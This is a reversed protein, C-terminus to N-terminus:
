FIGKYESFYKSVGYEKLCDRKKKGQFNIIIAQVKLGQDM